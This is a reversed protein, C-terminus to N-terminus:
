TSCEKKRERYTKSREASTKPSGKVVQGCTPCAEGPVVLMVKAMSHAVELKTEKHRAVRAPTACKHGEGAPYFEGCSPCKSTVM